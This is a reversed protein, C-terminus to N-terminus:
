VMVTYGMDGSDTQVEETQSQHENVQNCTSCLSTEISERMQKPHTLQNSQQHVSPVEAIPSTTAESDSNQASSVYQIMEKLQPDRNELYEHFAEMEKVSM